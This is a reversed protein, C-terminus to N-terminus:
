DELLNCERLRLLFAALDATAEESTVDFSALIAELIQAESQEAQLGKWIECGVPNLCIMGNFDLAGEGVPIAITEGMIERLVFQSKLKM